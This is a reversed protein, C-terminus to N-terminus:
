FLQPEPHKHEVTECWLIKANGKDDTEVYCVKKDHGGVVDEIEDFTLEQVGLFGKNKQMCM